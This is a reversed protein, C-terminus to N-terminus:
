IGQNISVISKLNNLQADIAASSSFVVTIVDGVACVLETKSQLALQFPTIAPSTYVPSGNQNVVYSAGSGTITPPSATTSIGSGAGTDVASNTVTFQVAVNYLGAGHFPYSPTAALITYTYTPLGVGQQSENLHLPNSM